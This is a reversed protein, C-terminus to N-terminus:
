GACARIKAHAASSREDGTRSAGGDQGHRLDARRADQYATSDRQLMAQELQSNTSLLGNVLRDSREEAEKLRLALRVRGLLVSPSDGGRAQDDCVGDFESAAPTSADDMVLILKQHSVMGGGRLQRCVEM